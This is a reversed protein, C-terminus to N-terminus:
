VNRLRKIPELFEPRQSYLMQELLTLAKDKQGAQEYREALSKHMWFHLSQPM